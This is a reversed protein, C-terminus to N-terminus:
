PSFGPRESYPTLLSVLEARLDPADAGHLPPLANVESSLGSVSFDSQFVEPLNELRYGTYRM